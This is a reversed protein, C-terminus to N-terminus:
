GQIYKEYHWQISKLTMDDLSSPPCTLANYLADLTKEHQHAAHYVDALRIWYHPNNPKLQVARSLWEMAEELTIWEEPEGWLVCAEALIQDNYPNLRIALRYEEVAREYEVMGEWYLFALQAHLQANDPALEIAKQLWHLAKHNLEFDTKALWWYCTSIQSFLRPEKIEEALQLYIALAESHKRKEMLQNALVLQNFNHLSLSLDNMKNTGV